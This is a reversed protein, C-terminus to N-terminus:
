LKFYKKGFAVVNPVRITSNTGTGKFNTFDIQNELNEIKTRIATTNLDGDLNSYIGIAIAEFYSELFQGKGEKKFVKDGEAEKM